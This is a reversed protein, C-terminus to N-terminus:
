ACVAGFARCVLAADNAGKGLLNGDGNIENLRVQTSPVFVLESLEM